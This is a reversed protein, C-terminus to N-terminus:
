ARRSSATASPAPPRIEAAASSPCARSAPRLKRAAAESLQRQSRGVRVGAAVAIDDIELRELLPKCWQPTRVDLLLTGSADSVETAFEGTLRFRVYDKPLLVQTTENTLEQPENNRLWLIKPATFGTLAPNAVMRILKMAAAPARKSRPVSPPRGSITGCCHRAFSTTIRDLFVSGHMQGSSGSAPSTAPSSKARKSCKSVSKVTAQWWDEPDQESWGPRPSSLPYEVTASALMADM